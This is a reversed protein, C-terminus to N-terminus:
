KGKSQEEERSDESNEESGSVEM